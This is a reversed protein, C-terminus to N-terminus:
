AAKAVIIGSANKVGGRRAPCCFPPEFLPLPLEPAALGTLGGPAKGMALAEIALGECSLGDMEMPDGNPDGLM